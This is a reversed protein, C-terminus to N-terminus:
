RVEVPQLGIRHLIEHFAPDGRIARYRIDSPIHWLRATREEIARELWEIGQALNGMGLHALAVETAPVYRTRVLQMLVELEAQAKEPWGKKTYM